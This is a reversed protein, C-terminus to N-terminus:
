ALRGRRALPPLTILLLGAWLLGVTPLVGFQQLSVGILAQGLAVMGYPILRYISNVRGQLRDPTATLRYSVIVVVALSDILSYGIMVTGLILPATAFAYLPWMVLYGLLAGPLALAFDVRRRVQAGLITGAMNGLGGIGLIIGVLTTSIGHQQAIVLVILISGNLLLEIYGALLSLWRLLPQSWLWGIGERIETLLHTKTPQRKGQLPARIRLLSGLLVLYSVADAVFPLFRGISFLVGTVSPALLAVTSYVGENLAVVTPMQEKSALRTLAGLRAPHYFAAFSGIAFAVIYIHALTLGRSAAAIAVSALCLLLGLSCCLMVRKRDWRDALAGAPLSFLLLPAQQLAGALGAAAPSGTDALILLPFALQSIGTGLSSVAQGLWLLLYDRNRWLSGPGAQTLM